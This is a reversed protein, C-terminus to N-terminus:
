RALSQYSVAVRRGSTASEVIADGIAAVRYGDEFTAADPGVPRDTAIAELFHAIQNIHAHEWGLIHGRPWWARYYPHHSETVLVDRFGPLDDPPGAPDSELYVHLRNLDELNFWLSGRDGTVEWTQQNKRGTCTFAADISGVAGNEFELLSQV